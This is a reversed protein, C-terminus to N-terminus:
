AIQVVSVLVRSDQDEGHLIQEILNMLNLTTLVSLLCLLGELYFKRVDLDVVLLNVIEQLVVLLADAVVRELDM